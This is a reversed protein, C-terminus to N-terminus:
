AGRMMWERIRQGLNKKPEDLWFRVQPSKEWSPPADGVIGEVPIARNVREWMSYEDRAKPRRDIWGPGRFRYGVAFGAPYQRSHRGPAETDEWTGLWEMTDM